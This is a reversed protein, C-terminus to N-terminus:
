QACKFAPFYPCTVCLVQKIGCKEVDRQKLAGQWYIGTRLEHGRRKLKIVKPQSHEIMGIGVLEMIESPFM